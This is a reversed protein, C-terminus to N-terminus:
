FKETGVREAIQKAAMEATCHDTDILLAPAPLPPFDFGHQAEILQYLAPDTLKGFARRSPNSLRQLVTERRCRLEVLLLTGGVGRVSQLLQEILEPAVSAEPNFTFIFSRRMRAAEDFVARWITARLTNFSPTGFAFLSKATDVALHNHFLPLGTLTSLQKAITYKGAAPPGHMFVVQFPTQESM